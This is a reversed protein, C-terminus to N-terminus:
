TTSEEVCSSDVTVDVETGLSASSMPRLPELWTLISREVHETWTAVVEDAQTGPEMCVNITASRSARLLTQQNALDIFNVQSGPAAQPETCGAVFITVAVALHTKFM